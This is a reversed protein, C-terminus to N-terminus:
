QVATVPYNIAYRYYTDAGIERVERRCLQIAQSLTTPGVKEFLDKAGSRGIIIPAVVLILEDALKQNLMESYIIGGGEVLVHCIGERILAQLASALHVKGDSTSLVPLIKVGSKLMADCRYSKAGESTTIIWTAAKDCSQVVNANPPTRLRSDLVVRVPHRWEEGDFRALLFPNDALLTGTGIMIADYLSREWHTYRRSAWSTIWATRDHASRGGDRTWDTDQRALPAIKGDVSIGAKLTVYPMGTRVSKFYAKNLEEGEAELVGVDVKIGNARLESVGGGNVRHYPDLGSVVVRSVGSEIIKPVCPGTRGLHCCPELTVFLTAGQAKFNVKRLANIEAHDTGCKSHFGEAVIEGDKVVVAGVMPNPHTWGMGKRALALARRMYDYDTMVGQRLEITM